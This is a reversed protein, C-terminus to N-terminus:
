AALRLWLVAEGRHLAEYALIRARPGRRLIRMQSAYAAMARLKALWDDPRCAQRSWRPAPQVDLGLARPGEDRPPGGLSRTNRALLAWSAYPQEVYLGLPTGPAIVDLALRAIRLHDAHALPFGPLLVADYGKLAEALRDRLEADPPPEENRDDSITLWVPHSDVLRCALRDEERRLRAAEGATAFGARRNSDDAPTSSEPDGALVTLADVHAGRRAAARMSAGLSLVADDLHPSVVVVRGSWAPADLVTAPRTGSGSLM